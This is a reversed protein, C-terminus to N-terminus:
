ASEAGVDGIKWTIGGGYAAPQSSGAIKKAGQGRRWAGQEIHTGRKGPFSRVKQM